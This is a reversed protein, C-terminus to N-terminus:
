KILILESSVVEIFVKENQVLAGYIHRNNPFAGLYCILQEKVDPSKEKYTKHIPFGKDKKVYDKLLNIFDRKSVMESMDMLELDM